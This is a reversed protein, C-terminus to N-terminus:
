HRLGFRKNLRITEITSCYKDAFCIILAERSKPIKTITLPWMHSRIAEQEKESIDFHKVANNCAIDPHDFGHTKRSPDSDHWDYLFLDHLMAAEILTKEDANLHLKENILYSIWAVNECHELTTTTGHQIYRGMQKVVDYEFYDKILEEFREECLQKAIKNKRETLKFVAIRSIVKNYLSNQNSYVQNIIDTMHNQFGEDIAAVRRQFDTLASITLTADMSIISVLLLALINSLSESLTSLGRDALPILVKMVLISATGFALSTPVSTRGNINLPVNSYDWWRANFRKELIWSTPYELVMSVIFGLIFIMWWEMTPLHGAKCLDYIFFGFLSGFGYIPCIPGYLFGRNAWKHKCMTCYISEWLWGLFSFLFFALIYRNM